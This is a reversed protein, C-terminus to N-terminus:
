KWDLGTALLVRMLFVTFTALRLIGCVRHDLLFWMMVLLRTTFASKLQVYYRLKGLFLPLLYCM